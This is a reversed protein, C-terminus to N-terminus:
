VYKVERLVENKVFPKLYKERAIDVKKVFAKEM